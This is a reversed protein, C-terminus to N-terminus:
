IFFNNLTIFPLSWISLPSDLSLRWAWFVDLILVVRSATCCIVGRPHYRECPNWDTNYNNGEGPWLSSSTLSRPMWWLSRMLSSTDAAPGTNCCAVGRPWSSVSSWLPPALASVQISTSLFDSPRAFSCCGCYAFVSGSVRSFALILNFGHVFISLCWVNLCWSKLRKSRKKLVHM